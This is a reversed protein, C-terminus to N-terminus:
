LLVLLVLLHDDGGEDLFISLIVWFLFRFEVDGKGKVKNTTPIRFYPFSSSSSISSYTVAFNTPLPRLQEHVCPDVAEPHVERLGGRRVEQNRTPLQPGGSQGQGKQQCAGRPPHCM